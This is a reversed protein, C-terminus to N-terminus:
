AVPQQRRDAVSSSAIEAYLQEFAEIVREGDLNGFVWERGCQGMTARREPDDLLAGVVEAIADADAPVIVAGGCRELEPWTDAGRTTVVPTGAALAEFLVFGFNEQSTPLVFVDAAQYLSVKEQGTVFGPFVVHGEL